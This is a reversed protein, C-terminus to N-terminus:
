ESHDCVDQSFRRQIEEHLVMKARYKEGEIFKDVFFPYANHKILEDYAAQDNRSLPRPQDFYFLEGASKNRYEPVARQLCFLLIGIDCSRYDPERYRACCDALDKEKYRQAAQSNVAFITSSACLFM